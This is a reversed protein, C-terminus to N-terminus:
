KTWWLPRIQNCLYCLLLDKKIQVAFSQPPTSNCTQYCVKGFAVWLGVWWVWSNTFRMIFNSSLMVINTWIMSIFASFCLFNILAWCGNKLPLVLKCMKSKGVLLPRKILSTKNFLSSKHLCTVLRIWISNWDIACNTRWSHLLPFFINMKWWALYM